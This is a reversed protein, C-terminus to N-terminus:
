VRQRARRRLVSGTGLAGAGLVVLGGGLLAMTEVPTGTTALAPAAAAPATTTPAAAATTTAASAVGGGSTSPAPAGSALPGAVTRLVQAPTSAAAQRATTVIGFADAADPTYGAPMATPTLLYGEAPLFWGSFIIRGTGDSTGTGYSIPASGERAFGHRLHLSGSTDSTTTTAAPSSTDTSPTSADSGSSPATSDSTEPATTTTPATTTPENTTPVTTTPATTAPLCEAPVAGASPTQAGDGRHPYDPGTLEYAACGVPDGTASDTVTTVLETRFLSDNGVPVARPLQFACTISGCVSLSASGANRDLGATAREQTLTYTGPPLFANSRMSALGVRSSGMPDSSTFTCVGDDGTTCEYVVGTPTTPTARFVAGSLDLDNPVPGTPAVRVDFSKGTGFDGALPSALVASAEEPTEQLPVPGGSLEEPQDATPDEIAFAAPAFVGGAVLLGLGLASGRLLRRTTRPRSLAM